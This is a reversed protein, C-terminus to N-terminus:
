RGRRRELALREEQLDQLEQESLLEVFPGGDEEAAIEDRADEGVDEGSTACAIFEEAAAEAEDDRIRGRRRALDPLFAHADDLAHHRKMTNM